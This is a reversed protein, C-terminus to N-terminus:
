FMLVAAQGAWTARRSQCSLAFTFNEYKSVSGSYPIVNQVVSEGRAESFAQALEALLPAPREVLQGPEGPDAPGRQRPQLVGLHAGRSLYQAAEAHRVAHRQGPKQCGDLRLERGDDPVSRLREPTVVPRAEKTAGKRRRGGRQRGLDEFARQPGTGPEGIGGWGHGALFVVQQQEFPAELDDEVVPGVGELGTVAQTIAEGARAGKGGIALVSGAVDKDEDSGSM